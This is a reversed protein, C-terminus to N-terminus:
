RGVRVKKEPHLRFCVYKKKNPRILSSQSTSVYPMGPPLAGPPLSGPPPGQMPM